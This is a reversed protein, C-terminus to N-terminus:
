SELMNFYQSRDVLRKSDNFGELTKHEEIIGFEINTLCHKLESDLFFGFFTQEQKTIM